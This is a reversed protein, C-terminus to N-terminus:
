TKVHLSIKFQIRSVNSSISTSTEQAGASFMKAVAIGGKVGSSEEENSSVAIDFTVERSYTGQIGLGYDNDIVYQHGDRLGDTIQIITQAIFEKLEM